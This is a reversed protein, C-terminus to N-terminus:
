NYWQLPVTHFKRWQTAKAYEYVSGALQLVPNSPFSVLGVGDPIRNERWTMFLQCLVYICYGVELLLYVGAWYFDYNRVTYVWYTVSNISFQLYWGPTLVCWLAMLVVLKTSLTKHKALINRSAQLTKLGCQSFFSHIVSRIIYTYLYLFIGRNNMLAAPKKRRGKNVPMGPSGRINVAFVIIKGKITPPAHELWVNYFAVCYKWWVECNYWLKIAITFELKM